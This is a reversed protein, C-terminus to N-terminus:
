KLALIGEILLYTPQHHYYADEISENQSRWDFVAMKYLHMLFGASLLFFPLFSSFILSTLLQLALKFFQLFYASFYTVPLLSVNKIEIFSHIRDM